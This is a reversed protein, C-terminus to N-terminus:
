RGFVCKEIAAALGAANNDLTVYWGNSALEPVSNGMVVPLGAFELMDLDNHNDGVAMVQERGVGQMGAWAALAAGKSCQPHILDMIGLDKDEYFTKTMQFDHRFASEELLAEVARLPELPGSFMVQLPDNHLTELAELLPSFRVYQKVREYWVMFQPTRKDLSEIVVQTLHEPDEPDTDYALVAYDRWNPTAKLVAAAVARPLLKRFHTVGDRTRIVAGNACIVAHDFPLQAAIPLAFTYRRGTVLVVHIGAANAESLVALNRAPIKQRSDLLTGDIDTAIM